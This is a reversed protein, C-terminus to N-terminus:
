QRPTTLQQLVADLRSRAGDRADKARAVVLAIEINKRGESDYRTLAAGYATEAEDVAQQLELVTQRNYAEVLSRNSLDAAVQELTIKTSSTNNQSNETSM